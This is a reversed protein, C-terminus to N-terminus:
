NDLKSRAGARLGSVWQLSRQTGATLSPVGARLGFTGDHMSQVIVEFGVKESTFPPVGARLGSAGDQMSHAIVELDSTISPVGARLGSTGDHM